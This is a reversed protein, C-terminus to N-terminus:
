FSIPAHQEIVPISRLRQVMTSISFEQGLREIARSTMDDIVERPASRITDLQKALQDVDNNTFVLATDGVVSVPGPTDSCIVPVSAAMAELLVIGFAEEETSPLVFADFAKMYRRAEDVAGCFVVRDHIGLRKATDQLQARLPGDGVIALISDGDTKAMAELLVQHNKKRVLRGIVGYCFRGLPVGLAHRASVSDHLVPAEISHPLVHLRENLHERGMRADGVVPESVGILHVNDKWYRSLTSRSWRKLFGYEHMVGVVAGVPLQYNLLMSVFFPKYRHAIILDPPSDKVMERVQRAVNLKLGGLDGAPLTLFEVEGHIDRALSVSMPGRLFLTTVDCDSFCGAYQRAVTKFPGKYDHCLQLIRPKDIM